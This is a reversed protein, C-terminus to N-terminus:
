DSCSHGLEPCSPSSCFRIGLFSQLISEIDATFHQLDAVLRHYCTGNVTSHQAPPASETGSIGAPDIFQIQVAPFIIPYLRSFNSDVVSTVQWLKARKQVAIENETQRNTQRGTHTHTQRDTSGEWSLLLDALPEMHCICLFSFQIKKREMELRYTTWATKYM